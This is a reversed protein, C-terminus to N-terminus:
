LQEGLYNLVRKMHDIYEEISRDSKSYNCEKCCTRCNDYEYGISNNYRDIGNYVYDNVNAYRTRTKKVLQPKVGCLYCDNSTLEIFQELTIDFTLDRKTAGYRYESYLIRAAQNSDQIKKSKTINFEKIYCGCSKTNNLLGGKVKDVINGCDCRCTWWDKRGIIGRKDPNKNDKWYAFKLVVLKGFRKGTLDQRPYETRLIM